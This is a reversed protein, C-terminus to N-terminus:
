CERVKDHAASVKDDMGPALGASRKTGAPTEVRARRRGDGGLGEAFLALSFERRFQWSAFNNVPEAFSSILPPRTV